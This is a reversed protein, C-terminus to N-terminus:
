ALPLGSGCRTAQDHLRLLPEIDEHVRGSGLEALLDCTAWGSAAAEYTALWREFAEQMAPDERPHRGPPRGAGCRWPKPTLRARFSKQGRCLRVFAPDAGCATMLREAEASAPEFLRDTILLRLGAATRYVRAASWPDTEVLRRLEEIREEVPDVARRGFLRGLSRWPKPPPLDVDVFMAHATNLVECGYVNRTVVAALGDAAGPLERLIEERVPRSGYAYWGRTGAQFRARLLQLIEGAKTRADAVSEQSWGWATLQM